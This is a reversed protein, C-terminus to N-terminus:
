LELQFVKITDLMRGGMRRYFDHAPTNWDLATWEVAGCGRDRALEVMARFLAKGAGRGRDEPLVFLDEIYLKPKARFSGFTEFVVACGVARGGFEALYAEFRPNISSMEETLRQRGAADPPTLREYEALAVLLSIVAGSDGPGARRVTIESM